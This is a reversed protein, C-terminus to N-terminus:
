APFWGFDLEYGLYTAWNRGPFPLSGAWITEGQTGNVAKAHAAIVVKGDPIFGLDALPIVYTYTTVAPDHDTAYPFQGPIPNGKKTQPIGSLEDAVALHTEVLEWGGSTAYTIYLNFDDNSVYLNGANITQGAWLTDTLASTGRETTPPPTVAGRSTDASGAGCSATAFALALMLLVIYRGMGMGRSHHKDRLSMWQRSVAM